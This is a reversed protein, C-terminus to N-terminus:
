KHLDYMERIHMLLPTLKLHNQGSIPFVRLGGMREVFEGYNAQAEPLDMKNAVIASPREVLDKSFQGLEFKLSDVQDWPSVQAMDIVYLLCLCREIHKLFQIGLGKNKHAGPILGPIDAVAVQEEDEYKVMGLYPQLTTFPYSAVKPRARSVARLLTSKGANPFGVLGVHAVTKIEVVYMVEEGHAGYEAIEPTQEINTTFYQNGKGGAGGRAAVFIAGDECLDAVVEGRRNKFLTGVPVNIISHDANKGHCDRNSGKEGDEGEIVRSVRDLSTTNTTARFLVHGGNGGSGGDPGGHPNAFRRLLSICGDGGKGAKVKVQKWDVIARASNTESKAKRIPLPRPRNSTETSSWRFAASYIRM